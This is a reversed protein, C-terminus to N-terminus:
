RPAEDTEGEPAIDDEHIMTLGVCGDVLVWWNGSPERDNTPANITAPVQVTVMVRDGYKM